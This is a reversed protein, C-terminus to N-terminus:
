PIPEVNVGGLRVGLRMGVKVRGPPAARVAAEVEELNTIDVFTTHINAKQPLFTKLLAHTGGAAAAALQPAHTTM